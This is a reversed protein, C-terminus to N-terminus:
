TRDTAMKMGTLPQNASRKPARRTKTAASTTKVMPEMSHPRACLKGMSTAIGQIAQLHSQVTPLLKQALAKADADQGNAIEKQLLAITDKHAKVQSKVYAKDFTEGTLMDLEGKKTDAGIGPGTPLKRPDELDDGKSWGPGPNTQFYIEANDPPAPNPGHAGDFVVGKLKM